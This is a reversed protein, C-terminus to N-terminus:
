ARKVDARALQVKQLGGLLRLLVECRQRPRMEAYLGFQGAFAGRMIKVTDGRQFTPKRPLQVLGNHERGRLESIIQDSVHAPADGNLLLRMVGPSWRAQHWQLQVLVFCYGPFLADTQDARRESRIRPQYVEFGNIQLCHLALKARGHELQAVCWYPPM